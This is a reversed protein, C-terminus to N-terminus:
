LDKSNTKAMMETQHQVSTLIWMQESDWYNFNCNAQEMTIVCKNSLM